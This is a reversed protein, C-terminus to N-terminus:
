FPHQPFPGYRHSTSGTTIYDHEFGVVLKGGAGVHEGLVVIPDKWQTESLHLFEHKSQLSYLLIYGYILM